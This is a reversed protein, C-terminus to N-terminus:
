KRKILSVLIFTFLNFLIISAGSPIGALISLIIGLYFTILAIIASIVVLRLYSHTLRHAISVPFIILSSILLSGTLRMGIAVTIGTLIALIIKYFRTNIGRTKAYEPDHTIIFLRHHLFIMLFIVLSGLILSVIVDLKTLTLLSGFLYGAVDVSFGKSKTAIVIGFALASNSIIGILADSYIRKNESILVVIVSAIVMMPIAFLLPAWAMAVALSLAGFGIHALGDGILALRKYVLVTGLLATALSIVFGVLMARQVFELSLM